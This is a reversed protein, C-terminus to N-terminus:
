LNNIIPVEPKFPPTIENELRREMIGRNVVPNGQKM